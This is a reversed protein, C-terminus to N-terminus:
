SKVGRAVGFREVGCEYRVKNYSETQNPASLLAISLLYLRELDLDAFFSLSLNLIRNQKYYHHAGYFHKLKLSGSKQNPKSFHM